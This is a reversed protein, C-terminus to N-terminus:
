QGGLAPLLSRYINIFAPGLLVLLMSPFITFILPFLLKVALKAAKEEAILRRKTRLSESHVRLSEAISTGFRDSQVLMAVLSDIDELGTRMALNRLAQERSAGARLELGVMRFEESTIPSKIAMEEGVRGIAADLGLGAEVCVTMLDLADPFNEFLERQRVFILRHLILNPLYYGLAALALVTVLNQTFVTEFGGFGKVLLYIAPLALALLTKAGFYIIPANKGRYGANIFRLRIPSSQWDEEPLSLKSLPHVVDVIKQVWAPEQEEAGEVALRGGIVKRLRKQAAGPVLANIVIYAAALVAFFIILLIVLQMNPM